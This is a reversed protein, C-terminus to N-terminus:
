SIHHNLQHGVSTHLLKIYFNGFNASLTIHVESVFAKAIMNVTPCMETRHISVIILTMEPFICNQLIKNLLHTPFDKNMTFVSGNAHQTGDSESHLPESLHQSGLSKAM